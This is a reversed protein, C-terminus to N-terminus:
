SESIKYELQFKNELEDILENTLNIKKGRSNMNVTGIENDCMVFQLAVNGPHTEFLQEMEHIFGENVQKNEVKIIFKKARKERVEALM